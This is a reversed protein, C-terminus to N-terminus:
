GIWSRVTKFIGKATLGLQKMLAQQTAQEIFTDPIGIHLIKKNVLGHRNIVSAVAEGVGGTVCGYECTIIYKAKSAMRVITEEDLPKAYRLNVVAPTHGEAKLLEAAGYAECVMRGYALFLIGKGKMLVEAKGLALPEQVPCFPRVAEGRQYRLAIPGTNHDCAMDIMAVFEDADKAEMLTMGPIMRMYAIDFVGHHTPGDEGVLGARDIFFRVPAKQLAVDHIIQDYARQLFTSYIAVLPKYGDLAMAAATVVAGEEAIGADLYHEPDKERIASLGTGTPMAATMAILKSDREIRSQVKEAFLETYSIGGKVSSRPSIGHYKEPDQEAEPSGKGKVTLVHIVKPGKIDKMKKMISMLQKIDHGDVPGFYYFGLEDFFAGNIVINKLSEEVRRAFAIMDAGKHFNELVKQVEGKMRWYLRDTILRNFYKSLAGVNHDISMKNDNFIVTVNKKMSGILSLGEYALGGTLSGDGIVAVIENDKGNLDRTVAFGAAASISTSAHGANFVDYPSEERKLFGSLGGETRLTVFRGYRGTVLKHAYAQHGVDWIIKDHPTNYVSHLALTLEVVGLSPGIHGGNEHVVTKICDRLEEALITLEDISMTRLVAPTLQESLFRYETV